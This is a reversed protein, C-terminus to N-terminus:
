APQAPQAPRLPPATELRDAYRKRAREAVRHYVYSALLPFALTAEAFVMQSLAADVKGWSQAESLTSGSLGGDREDAVTIQIAYKHMEVRYGLVEAAVVIDQAFNKPVGGGLMVLGTTGAWIKIQTLERFDAVSDISVHRDPHKAQHYVLGFGASSDSFAPVFIPVGEEYAARVISGEGLGREVLYRGMAQIFARSSYVGPPLSDAIEAITYDTHRLEEEDIYTDYIRDIWLRRLAEDDARPDGQYHRHGLAEFFDQDVINAGTAVIVDVLGKRILDHIARGQGASVLSGALTLIVTAGEELMTRYIEAARYLNRAQFATRGMAELIPGADFAKIDIPEVPTSLLAKKEM